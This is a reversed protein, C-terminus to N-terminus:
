PGAVSERGLGVHRFRVERDRWSGLKGRPRRAQAVIRDSERLGPTSAMRRSRVAFMLGHRALRAAVQWAVPQGGGAAPWCRSGAASGGSEASLLAYQHAHLLARRHM